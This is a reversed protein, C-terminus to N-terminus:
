SGSSVSLKTAGLLYSTLEARQPLPKFSCHTFNKIPLVLEILTTLVAPLMATQKEVRMTSDFFSSRSGRRKRPKNVRKHM